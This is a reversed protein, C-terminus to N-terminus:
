NQRKQRLTHFIATSYLLQLNKGSESSSSPPLTPQSSPEKSELDSWFFFFTKACNCSLALPFLVGCLEPDLNLWAFVIKIAEPVWKTHSSTSGPCLLWCAKNERHKQLLSEFFSVTYLSVPTSWVWSNINDLFAAEWKSCSALPGDTVLGQEAVLGRGPAIVWIAKDRKQLTSCKFADNVQRRDEGILRVEPFFCGSSADSVPLFYWRKEVSFHESRGPGMWVLSQGNRGSPWMCPWIQM